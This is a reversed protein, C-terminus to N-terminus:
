SISWAIGILKDNQGLKLPRGSVVRPERENYHLFCAVRNTQANALYDMSKPEIGKEIWVLISLINIIV